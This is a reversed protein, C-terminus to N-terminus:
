ICAHANTTPHAINYRAFCMHPHDLQRSHLLPRLFSPLKSQPKLSKCYTKMPSHLHPLFYTPFCARHRPDGPTPQVTIPPSVFRPFVSSTRFAVLQRRCQSSRLADHLSHTISSIYITSFYFLRPVYASVAAIAIRPYNPFSLAPFPIPLTTPFYTLSSLTQSHLLPFIFPPATTPYRPFPNRTRPLSYSM